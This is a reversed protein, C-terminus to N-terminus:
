YHTRRRYRSAPLIAQEVLRLVVVGVRDVVQGEDHVGEHVVITLDESKKFPPKEIAAFIVPVEVMVTCIVVHFHLHLLPREGAIAFTVLTLEVPQLRITGFIDTLVQM